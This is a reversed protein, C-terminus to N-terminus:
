VRTLLAMPGTARTRYRSNGYSPEAISSSAARVVIGIVRQQAEIARELLHRNQSALDDLRRAISILHPSAPANAAEGAEALDAVAATKEPLLGTARRLDMARLADNEQELIDALRQAATILPTPTM